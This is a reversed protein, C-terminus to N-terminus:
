EELHAQTMQSFEARGESVNQKIEGCHMMLMPNM